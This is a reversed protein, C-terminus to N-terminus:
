RVSKLWADSSHSQRIRKLAKLAEKPDVYSEYAVTHLGFKNTGIYSPEFGRRKLQRIKKEANKRFRFAGAIIHHTKEAVAIPTEIVVKEVTKVDLNL